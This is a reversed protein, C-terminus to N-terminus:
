NLNGKRMKQITENLTKIFPIVNHFLFLFNHCIKEKFLVTPAPDPGFSQNPSRLMKLKLKDKETKVSM